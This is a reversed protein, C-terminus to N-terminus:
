AEYNQAREGAGHETEVVQFQFHSDAALFQAIDYGAVFVRNVIDCVQVVIAEPAVHNQEVNLFHRAGLMGFESVSDQFIALVFRKADPNAHRIFIVSACDKREFVHYRRVRVNPRSLAVVFDQHLAEDLERFVFIRFREVSEARHAVSGHYFVRSKELVRFDAFARVYFAREFQFVYSHERRRLRFTLDALAHFHHVSDHAVSAANEILSHRHTEDDPLVALQFVAHPKQIGHEAVIGRNRAAFKQVIENKREM